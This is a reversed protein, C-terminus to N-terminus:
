RIRSKSKVSECKKIAISDYFDTYLEFYEKYSAYTLVKVKIFYIVHVWYEFVIAIRLM